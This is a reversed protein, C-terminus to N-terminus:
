SKRYLIESLKVELGLIGVRRKLIELSHRLDEKDDVCPGITISSGSSLIRSIDLDEDECYHRLRGSIDGGDRYDFYVDENDTETRTAVIRCEREYSYARSKYLFQIRGLSGWLAELVAQKTSPGGITVFPHLIDLVPLLLEGAERVPDPGYRVKRLKAGPVPLRLSCGEGERGYTRWFVLNDTAENAEASDSDPIIFSIIYAPPMANTALWDHRETLNLNRAFYNGEDPDNFHASDYMRLSAGLPEQYARHEGVPPNEKMRKAGAQLMSVVTAVSTYHVVFTTSGAEPESVIHDQEIQLCVDNMAEELKPIVIETAYGLHLYGDKNFRDIGAEIFTQLRQLNNRAVAM